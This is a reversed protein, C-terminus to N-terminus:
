TGSQNRLFDEVEAVLRDPDESTDEDFNAELQEVYDSTDDDESVLESVQREYNAASIELDTRPVDVGLVHTLREVLALAAKSSPINPVYTPVSAWFSAVSLGRERLEAALVGVIGTPGEYTSPSLQLHAALVPDDTGGYVQTPRTHPVDTLLAGLTCVLSADLTKAVFAVHDVFTQWRLQPEHGIACVLDRSAGPIQAVHISTSPWVIRRVDEGDLCISPRAVTFDFFDEADITAVHEAEFHDRLYRAASSSAEGADNWGEFAALLVPSRLDMPVTENNWSLHPARDLAM